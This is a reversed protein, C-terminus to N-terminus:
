LHKILVSSFVILLIADHEAYIIFAVKSESTQDISAQKKIYKKEIHSLHTVYKM